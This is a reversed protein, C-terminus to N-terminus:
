STVAMLHKKRYGSERENSIRFKGITGSLGEVLRNLDEAAMAIQETSAASQQIVSSINVLRDNMEETTLSMKNTEIASEKVIDATKRSESLIEQLVSESKEAYEKGKLIEANGENIANVAELTDAQIKKIMSAIEKTAVGTREALKRVEDAVVSFGRGQEGARAAEIAANLALLNTQDAIEDIVQIIEGIHSSNMGLTTITISAKEMVKAIEHIENITQNLVKSGEEAKDGAKLSNESALNIREVNNLVAQTMIDIANTIEGAQLSLEQTGKAMQETSASIENTASSTNYAAEAVNKIAENLDEVTKNLNCTLLYLDSNAEIEAKATLDGGAILELAEAINKTQLSLYEKQKKIEERLDTFFMFVGIISEDFSKLPGSSVIIPIDKGYRDKVVVKIGSLSVGTLTKKTANDSGVMEKVTMINITEAQTYGFMKAGEESIYTIRTNKDSVIFPSQIGNKLSRAFSIEEKSKNVLKTVANSLQNIGANESRNQSEVSIEELFSYIDNKLYSIKSSFSKIVLFTILFVFFSGSLIVPFLSKPLSSQSYNSHLIYYLLWFISVSIIATVSLGLSVELNKRSNM